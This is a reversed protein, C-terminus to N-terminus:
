PMAVAHTPRNDGELSLLPTMAYKTFYEMLLLKAVVYHSFLTHAVIVPFNCNLLPVYLITKLTKM